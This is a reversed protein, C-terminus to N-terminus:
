AKVLAGCVKFKGSIMLIEKGGFLDDKVLQMDSDTKETTSAKFLSGWQYVKNHEDVMCYYSNGCYFLKPKISKSIQFISPVYDIRWGTKHLLGSDDKMIMTNEGCCFDVYKIEKPKVVPTPFKESETYDIGIGAGIGLQGQNNKGWVYLVGGETLAGTYEDACDIKKIKNETKEQAYMELYENKM